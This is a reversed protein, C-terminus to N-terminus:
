DADNLSCGCETGFRKKRAFLLSTELFLLPYKRNLNTLIYYVASVLSWESGLAKLVVSRSIQQDGVLDRTGMMCKELIGFVMSAIQQLKDLYHISLLFLDSSEAEFSLYSYRIKADLLESELLPRWSKLLALL